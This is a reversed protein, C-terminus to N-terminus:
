GIRNKAGGLLSPPPSNGQTDNESRSTALLRGVSYPVIQAGGSLFFPLFPLIAM